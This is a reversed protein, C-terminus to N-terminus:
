AVTIVVKGRAGGRAAETLADDFRALPFTTRVRTTLVGQAALEFLGALRPGDAAASVAVTRIRDTRPEGGPIVGVYVGGDGVRAAVPDGLVAGDLAADFRGGLDDIAVCAGLARVADADAARALGTVTWGARAALTVAFGGVAGAAGTVLLDGSTAGTLDLAQAATLAALPLTAADVTSMGDPVVALDAAPLVAYEAFTGVTPDAVLAAVRVGPRLGAGSGAAVVEGALDWGMALVADPAAWGAERPGGAATFADVPNVAAAVIKVLVENPGPEPVPVDVLAPTGGPAVLVAQM